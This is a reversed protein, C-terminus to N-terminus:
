CGVMGSKYKGLIAMARGIYKKRTDSYKGGAGYSESYAVVSRSTLGGNMGAEDALVDASALLSVASELDAPLTAYGTTYTVKINNQGKPFYYDNYKKHLVGTATKLDFSTLDSVMDLPYSTYEIQTVAIVPRRNLILENTGNGSYYEVHTQVGSFGQGTLKEAYTTADAIIQNLKGTKIAYFVATTAENALAVGNDVDVYNAGVANVKYYNNNSGYEIYIYDTTTIGSIASSFTIRYSTGSNIIVTSISATSKQNKYDLNYAELNFLLRTLVSM